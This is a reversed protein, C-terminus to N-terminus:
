GNKVKNLQQKQHRFERKLWWKYRQFYESQTYPLENYDRHEDCNQLWLDHLWSRFDLHIKM